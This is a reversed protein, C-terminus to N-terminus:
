YNDHQDLHAYMRRAKERKGRNGHKKSLKESTDTLLQKGRSHVTASSKSFFEKDLRKSVSSDVVLGIDGQEIEGLPCCDRAMVPTCIYDEKSVGPPAECYLLKGNVYDKLLIRSSRPCDPVGSSTMFGRMAGYANLIELDTPPRDPQEGEKPKKLHIGYTLELSQRPIKQALTNIAPRHDRMQDIPLIGNLIMDAKTTVFSPMVLGPCDCLMTNADIYLTQFHKTRGPTASVPCKKAQLIANITSSKGVNPYGVLGITLVNEMQKKQPGLLNLQEVLETATHLNPTSHYVGKEESENSNEVGVEVGEASSTSEEAALKEAELKASWFFIRINGQENFYDCWHQRQHQTLFDSKNILIVNIKTSDVEKVYAELDECRFLLPNRSDVIQVVIDSREIVRWLQRWFDLNREYPTILIHEMEQLEALSRRWELFENRELSQLEEASMGGHWNPRRPIRLQKKHREQVKSIELLQSESLIGPAAVPGNVIEINLKEATFETGALEATALFDDLQNQETVSQLNLRGWDYGDDLESTHLFSDASRHPNRKSFRDKIITAGLAPSSGKKKNRKM